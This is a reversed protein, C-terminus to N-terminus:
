GTKRKRKRMNITIEEKVKKNEVKRRREEKKKENAWDMKRGKVRNRGISKEKMEMVLTWKIRGNLM